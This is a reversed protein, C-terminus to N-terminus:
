HYLTDDKFMDYTRHTRDLHPVTPEPCTTDPACAAMNRDFGTRYQRARDVEGGRPRGHCPTRDSEAKSWCGFGM